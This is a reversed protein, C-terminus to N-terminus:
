GNMGTSAWEGVAFRDFFVIDPPVDGAIASLLRQSDGSADQVTGTATNVRYEPHL